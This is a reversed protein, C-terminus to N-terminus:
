PASNWPGQTSFKGLADAPQYILATACVPEATGDGQGLIVQPTAILGDTILLAPEQQCV